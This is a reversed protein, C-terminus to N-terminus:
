EHPSRSVDPTPPSYRARAPLVQRAVLVSGRRLELATARRSPTRRGKPIAAYFFGAAIPRGVWIVTIRERVGDVYVIFLHLGAAAISSGSVSLLSTRSMEYEAGILYPRREGRGSPGRASRVRCGSWGTHHAFFAECYNGNRTPAAAIRIGGLRGVIRSVSRVDRPIGPLWGHPLDGFGVIRDQATM